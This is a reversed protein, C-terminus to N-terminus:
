LNGGHSSRPDFDRSDVGFGEALVAMAVVAMILVLLTIADM